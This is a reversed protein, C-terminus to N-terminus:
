KIENMCTCMYVLVDHNNTAFLPHIVGLLHSYDLTFLPIAGLLHTKHVTFLPM